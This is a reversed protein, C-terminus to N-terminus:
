LAHTFVAVERREDRKVIYSVTVKLSSDEAEAVVSELSILEGMEKQIAGQVLFQTAMAVEDGGPSFVLQLLGSGFSPRNVREGPATFIIQKILDRIHDPQEKSATRGSSHVQFPFAASKM